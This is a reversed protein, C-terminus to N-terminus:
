AAAARPVQRSRVEVGVAAFLLYFVMVQARHRYLTGVNGEGLSYSVTLFATLLLVQLAERFRHRVIYRLGRLAAPTYRYVLLMEPLSFLKLLSTIQWPFPSFLFYAIGLPLFAAAKGPTSIDTEEAFASGGTALNRRHQGLTELSMHKEARDAVGQQMLFLLGVGAILAVVFNREVRGRQGILFAVIPPLAAVYFLYDRFHTIAYLGALVALMSFLSFGRVVELSKWSVLLILFVVWVDRINLASWLVLSPFFAYFQTVRRAVADGFLARALRYVYIICVAGVFSNALKIPVDTKGFVYYFFANLYFYGL